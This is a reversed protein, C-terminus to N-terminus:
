DPGEGRSRKNCCFGLNGGGLLGFYIIRIAFRPTSNQQSKRQIKCNGNSHRGGGRTTRAQMLNLRLELEPTFHCCM